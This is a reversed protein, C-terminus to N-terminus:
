SFVSRISASFGADIMLRNYISTLQEKKEKRGFWRLFAHAKQQLRVKEKLDPQSIMRAQFVLRDAGSMDHFLYQDIEQLELLQKRM